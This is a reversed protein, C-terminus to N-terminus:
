HFQMREDFVTNENIDEESESDRETDTFDLDSYILANNSFFKYVCQELSVQAYYIINDNYKMSYYVSQLKLLKNDDEYFVYYKYSNHEKSYHKKNSVRIKNIDIDDIKFYKTDKMYATKAPIEAGDDLKLTFIKRNKSTKVNNKTTNKKTREESM